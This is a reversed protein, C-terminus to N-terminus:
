EKEFVLVDSEENDSHKLSILSNNFEVLKWDESLDDLPSEEAFHLDLEIMGNDGDAQWTGTFTSSGDTASVTSDPHFTFVFAAFADTQDVEHFYNTIKWNSELLASTFAGTDADDDNHDNDDDEDCGQMANVIADELQDNNSIAIEQGDNVVLTIPFKFAALDSEKLHEFFEFLDEDDELTVTRFAQNLSDYVSLTVPYEFDICEIDDDGGGETCTRAIATLEEQNSLTRQSHDSLIVTVPFVVSVSDDDSVSHDLIKEILVFDSASDIRIQEGNVIVTVPLVLSVCSAHDIINDSSGDKLTVREIYAAVASSPSIVEKPKVPTIEESERQCSSLAFLFIILASLACLGTAHRFKLDNQEKKIM